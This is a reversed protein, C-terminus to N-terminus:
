RVLMKVPIGCEEFSPKLWPYPYNSRTELIAGYFVNTGVAVEAGGSMGLGPRIFVSDKLRGTRTGPPGGPASPYYRGGWYGHPPGSLKIKARNQVRIGLRYLYRGVDGQPSKLVEYLGADNWIIRGEAPV